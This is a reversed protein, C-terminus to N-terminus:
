AVRLHEHWRQPRHGTEPKRGLFETEGALWGRLMDERRELRFDEFCEDRIPTDRFIHDDDPDLGFGFFRGPVQSLFEGMEEDTLLLLSSTWQKRSAVRPIREGTVPFHGVVIYFDALEPEYRFKNYWFFWEGLGRQRERPRRRFAKSAKVQVTASRASEGPQKWYVLLDWGKNQASM